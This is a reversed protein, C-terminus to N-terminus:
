QGNVSRVSKAGNVGFKELSCTQPCRMKTFNGEFDLEIFTEGGEQEEL